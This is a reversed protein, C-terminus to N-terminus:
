ILRGVLAHTATAKLFRFRRARLQWRPLTQSGGENTHYPSQDLNEMDPDYGHVAEIFARVRYISLWCLELNIALSKRSTKYRRNPRKMSLGYEEEWNRIWTPTPIFLKCRKGSKICEERYQLSLMTIRQRLMSRPFRGMAKRKKQKLARANRKKWDISFRVSEFWEFLQQRIFPCKILHIGYNGKRRSRKDGPIRKKVRGKLRGAHAPMVIDGEMSRYWRRVDNM